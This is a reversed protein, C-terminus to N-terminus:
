RVVVRMNQNLEDDIDRLINPTAPPPPPLLSRPAIDRPRDPSPPAPQQSIKHNLPSPCWIMILGTLLPLYITTDRGLALMVGSFTIGVFSFLAQIVLLSNNYWFYFAPSIAGTTPFSTLDVPGRNSPIMPQDM